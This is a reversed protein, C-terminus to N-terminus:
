KLALPPLPNTEHGSAVMVCNALHSVIGTPVQRITEMTYKPDCSGAVVIMEETHMQIETEAWRADSSEETHKTIRDKTHELIKKQLSSWERRSFGRVVHVGVSTPVLHAQYAKDKWELYSGLAGWKLGYVQALGITFSEFGPVVTNEGFHETVVILEGPSSTVKDQVYAEISPKPDSEMVVTSPTAESTFDEDPKKAEQIAAAVIDKIDM